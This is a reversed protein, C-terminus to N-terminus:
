IMALMEAVGPYDKASCVYFGEAHDVGVRLGRYRNLGLTSDIYSMGAVQSAFTAISQRKADAVTSIDIAVNPWLTSWVEYCWVEGRWGVEEIALGLAAATAQHDRHHDGPFPVLVQTPGWERLFGALSTALAPEHLSLAGDPYPLVGLIELGLHAASTQAERARISSLSVDGSSAKSSVGPSASDSAYVVALQSGAQRHLWLTGGAGIVEDDMHPALVLVRGPRVTRLELPMRHTIRHVKALFRRSAWRRLVGPLVSSSRRRSRALFERPIMRALGNM